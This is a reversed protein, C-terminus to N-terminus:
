MLAIYSPRQCGSHASASWALSSCDAQGPMPELERDNGWDLFRLDSSEKSPERGIAAIGARVASSYARRGSRASQGFILLADDVDTLPGATRWVIERHGCFPNDALKGEVGAKVPNLHVYLVVQGLYKGEDVLGAQYRSQWWEGQADSVGTSATVL